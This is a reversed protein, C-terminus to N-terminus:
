AVAAERVAGSRPLLRDLLRRHWAVVEEDQAYGEGLLRALADLLYVIVIARAQGPELGLPCRATLERLCNAAAETNWNELLWGTQLRYHIEDILPLGRVEGYEWDFAGLEGQHLRLNWPAFDGHIVTIPTQFSELVPLVAELCDLLDERGPSLAGLRAPLSQAIASESAAIRVKTRLNALFEDHAATIGLPAPRGPLPTQVMVRTGDVEEDLLLLPVRGALSPNNSLHHLVRAENAAIERAIPSRALKAFALMKGNPAIVLASAKRNRAGEPAGSSLAIRVEEGPFLRRLSAELPPMERQAIWLHDRYWIPLRARMAARAALRKLKASRRSPTYLSLGASAVAPSDLPVLWRAHELNPVVAVHRAYAFGAARLSRESLGRCNVAVLGDCPDATHAPVVEDGGRQWAIRVRSTGGCESPLSLVTFWALANDCAYASASPFLHTWTLAPPPTQTQHTKGILADRGM